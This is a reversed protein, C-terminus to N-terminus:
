KSWRARLWAEADVADRKLLRLIAAQVAKPQRRVATPVIAEVEVSFGDAAIAKRIFAKAREEAAVVVTM